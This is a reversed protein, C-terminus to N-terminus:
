FASKVLNLFNMVFNFYADLLLGKFTKQQFANIGNLMGANMLVQSM